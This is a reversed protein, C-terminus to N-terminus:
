TEYGLEALTEGAVAEFESREAATMERRWRGARAPDPPELVREHTRMRREASLRDHGDGAPLDRNLEALRDASTRTHDLMAEDFSLEILECISRLAPEPDAVLEEYRVERYRAGLREAQARAGVIRRKWRGAIREFPRNGTSRDRISLAVDRGDRIVHVFRAESLVGAIETM